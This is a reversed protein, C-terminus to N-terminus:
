LEGRACVLVSRVGVVRSLARSGEGGGCCCGCWAAAGRPQGRVVLVVVCHREGGAQGLELALVERQAFPM